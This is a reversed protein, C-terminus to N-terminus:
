AERGGMGGGYVKHYDGVGKELSLLEEAKAHLMRKDFAGAGDALIQAAMLYEKENFDDVLIGTVGDIQDDLDGIGKNAIVPLGAALYEGFKTPSSAQKSLLPKIFFIGANAAAIYQPVKETGLHIVTYDSDTVGKETFLKVASGVDNNLLMLFFASPIKKKLANFFDIMEEFMYWTGYSGAYVVIYRGDAGLEKRISESSDAYKNFDFVETDVCCPIVSIDEGRNRIYKRNLLINRAKETLVVIKDAVCLLKKELDKIILYKLGGKKILGGDAYEEAMLGRMDFIYPINVSKGVNRAIIAPIYGRAHIFDVKNRKALVKSKITGTVIDWFTALLNPRKHYKLWHWEIGQNKLEQKKELFIEKKKLKEMREFTLLVFRYGKSQLGKIYPLVQSNTLPDLAGNYSIYLVTKM